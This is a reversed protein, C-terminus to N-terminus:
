WTSRGPCAGACGARLAGDESYVICPSDLCADDLCRAVADPDAAKVEVYFGVRDKLAALFADLRPLPEGAFVPDFWAGADLRDLTRSHTGAIPGSGDTTRDLTADHLVYLVGDASTRVDLEVIDAGLSAARLGSAVTNEPAHHCAGRHSVIFTM